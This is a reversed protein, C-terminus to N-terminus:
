INVHPNLISPLKCLSMHHMQLLKDALFPSQAVLPPYAGVPHDAFSLQCTGCFGALVQSIHTCCSRSQAHYMCHVAPGRGSIKARRTILKSQECEVQVDCYPCWIELFFM